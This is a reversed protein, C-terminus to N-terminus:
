KLNIATAPDLTADLDLQAAVDVNSLNVVTRTGLDKQPSSSAMVAPALPLFARTPALTYLVVVVKKIGLLIEHRCFSGSKSNLKELLCRPMENLTGLITDRDIAATM